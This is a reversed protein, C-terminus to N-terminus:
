INFTVLGWGNGIPAQIIKVNLLLSMTNQNKKRQFTLSSKSFFELVDYKAHTNIKLGNMFTCCLSIEINQLFRYPFIIQFLIFIYESQHVGSVLMIVVTGWNFFFDETNSDM